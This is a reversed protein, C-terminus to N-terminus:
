NRELLMKDVGTEKLKGGGYGELSLARLKASLSELKDEGEFSMREFAKQTALAWQCILLSARRMLCRTGEFGEKQDVIVM